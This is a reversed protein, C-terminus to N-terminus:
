SRQAQNAALSQFMTLPDGHRISFQRGVRPDDDNRGKVLGVQEMKRLRADITLWSHYNFLAFEGQEDGVSQIRPANFWPTQHHEYKILFKVLLQTLKDTALPQMAESEIARAQTHIPEKEFTNKKQVLARARKTHRHKDPAIRRDDRKSISKDLRQQMNEMSGTLTKKTSELTAVRGTLAVINAQLSTSDKRLLQNEIRLQEETKETHRINAELAIIKTEELAAVRGTLAVVHPDRRDTQMATKTHELATIRRSLETLNAQLAANNQKLQQNETRLPANTQETAQRDVALTGRSTQLHQPDPETTQSFWWYGVAGLTFMAITIGLGKIISRNRVVKGGAERAHKKVV